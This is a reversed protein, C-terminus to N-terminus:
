SWTSAQLINKSVNKKSIALGSNSKNKEIQESTKLKRSIDSQPGAITIIGAAVVFGVVMFRVASQVIDLQSRGDTRFINILWCTICTTRVRSVSSPLRYLLNTVVFNCPIKLLRICRWIISIMRSFIPNIFRACRISVVTLFGSYSASRPKERLMM